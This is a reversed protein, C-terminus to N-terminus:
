KQKIELIKYDESLSNKWLDSYTVEVWSEVYEGGQLYKMKFLYNKGIELDKIEMIKTKNSQVGM